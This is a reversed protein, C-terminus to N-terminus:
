ARAPSRWGALRVRADPKSEPTGLALALRQWRQVTFIDRRSSRKRTSLDTSRAGVYTCEDTVLAFVGRSDAWVDFAALTGNRTTCLPERSEKWGPEGLEVPADWEPPLPRHDEPAVGDM